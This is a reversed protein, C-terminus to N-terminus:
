KNRALGAIILALGLLAIAGAVFAFAYYGSSDIQPYPGRHLIRVWKESESQADNRAFYAGLVAVVGGAFLWGGVEAPNDKRESESKKVGYSKAARATASIADENVKRKARDELVAKAKAVAEAKQALQKFTESSVLNLLPSWQTMGDHWYFDTGELTGNVLLRVAEKAEYTGIEKGDRSIKVILPSSM